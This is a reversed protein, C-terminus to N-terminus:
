RVSVRGRRRLIRTRRRRPNGPDARGPRGRNRRRARHRARRARRGGTRRGRRLPAPLPSGPRPRLLAKERGDGYSFPIALQGVAEEVFEGTKSLKNFKCMTDRSVTYFTIKENKFDMAALIVADSFAMVHCNGPDFSDPDNRDIGLLLFTAVDDNFRYQKGKYTIVEGDVDAFQDVRDEQGPQTVRPTYVEKQHSMRRGRVAVSLAFSGMVLALVILLALAIRPGVRKRKARIADMQVEMSAENPDYNKPKRAM